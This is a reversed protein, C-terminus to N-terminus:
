TLEYSAANSVVTQRGLKNSIVVSFDVTIVDPLM